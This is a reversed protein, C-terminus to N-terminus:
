PLHAVVAIEIIADSSYLETVGVATWAPWPEETVFTGHVEVVMDIHERLNTHYSTMSIVDNWSAGAEALVQAIGQYALKVQARPGDPAARAGTVGSVHLLDGHRVAPSLRNERYWDLNDWAVPFVPSPESM